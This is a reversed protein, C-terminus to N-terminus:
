GPHAVPRTFNGHAVGPLRQRVTELAAAMGVGPEMAPLEEVLWDHDVNLSRWQIQDVAMELCAAITAELEQPSDTVGPFALLNLCVQGGARKV